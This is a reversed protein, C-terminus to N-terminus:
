YSIARQDLRDRLGAHSDPPKRSRRSYQHHSPVEHARLSIRRMAAADSLTAPRGARGLVVRTSPAPSTDACNRGGGRCANALARADQQPRTRRNVAASNGPEVRDALDGHEDVHSAYEGHIRKSEATLCAVDRLDLPDDGTFM